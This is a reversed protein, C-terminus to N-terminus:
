ISASCHRSVQMQVTWQPIRIISAQSCTRRPGQLAQLRTAMSPIERPNTVGCGRRKRTM